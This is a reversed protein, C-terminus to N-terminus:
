LPHRGGMIPRIPLGEEDGPRIRQVNGCADFINVAIGESASESRIPAGTISLV